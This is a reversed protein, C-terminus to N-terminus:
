SCTLLVLGGVLLFAVEAILAVAGLALGVGLLVGRGLAHLWREIKPSVGPAGAVRTPGAGSPVGDVRGGASWREEGLVAAM